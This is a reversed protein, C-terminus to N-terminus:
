IRAINSKAGNLIEMAKELQSDRGAAVDDKTLKVEVDPTLGKESISNGNPTLWRAITIKLSTNNTVPILEQVSGKGFTKEGVLLAVKNDRLAGALIEAASASGQNVLVVFPLNKFIDYGRSRYDKQEHNGFDERAVIKGAPLFWSAIDVSAELYGGPNGRLDLILKDSGSALMERLADRFASPSNESFNYLRIIFIGGPKKETDIVPIQITDRVVKIVLPEKEGERAITFEVPTGREGRILLIAEDVAMNETSTANIKLIKDGAKLGARYAPTNKLPAIVTLVRDRVGLEMGVGSFEGKVSSEFLQSEKPPFFVSYPDDLSSVMGEIAGWVLKQQDIVGRAVYKAEVANWATWFPMFDVQQPKEVEKNFLGTIKDVPPRHSYGFYVGIVFVAAVIAAIAGWFAARKFQRLLM